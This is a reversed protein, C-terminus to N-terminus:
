RPSVPAGALRDNHIRLATVAAALLPTPVGHAQGRGVLDGLITDVEVPHGQRLDRYMSSAFPSGPQTVTTATREADSAPVPYGAAAAVQYAEAVIARAVPAGGAAAIEGATGGLLCTAAGVSAIFAWKAWMAALINDSVTVPFGAGGLLEGTRRAADARSGDQAGITLSAADNLVVIDGQDDLQTAVIAVGGLVREPGFAANLTDLHRLGNLVPVITTGPGIAPRVDDIASDLGAAKVTLLVTEAYSAPGAAAADALGAATVLQPQVQVLGAGDAGVLRLGRERLTAARGARVLFTVDRGAQALQAGFYGGTAGAGVIVIRM